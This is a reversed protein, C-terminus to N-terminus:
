DPDILAVSEKVAAARLTADLTALAGDVDIALELYAAGDVSTM